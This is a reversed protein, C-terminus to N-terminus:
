GSGNMTARPAHSAVTACRTGIPAIRAVATVQSSNWYEGVVDAEVGLRDPEEHGRREREGGKRDREVTGV